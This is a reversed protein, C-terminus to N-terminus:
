NEFIKVFEVLKAENDYILPPTIISVSIKWKNESLKEGKITGDNITYQRNIWAGFERYFCKAHAMEEGSYEFNNAEESIEFILEESREDDNVDLCEAHTFTYEFVDNEGEAIRYWDQQWADNYEVSIIRNKSWSTTIIDPNCNTSEDSNCSITGFVSLLVLIVNKM